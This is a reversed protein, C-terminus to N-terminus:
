SGGNAGRDPLRLRCVLRRDNTKGASRQAVHLFSCSGGNACGRKAKHGGSHGGIRRSPRPAREVKALAAIAADENTTVYLATTSIHKHGVLHAVGALPCRQERAALHPLAEPRQPQRAQRTGRRPVAAEVSERLNEQKVGAFIFGSAPCVRRLAAQAAATLPVRREFHAKDIDRTVFLRSAGRKYHKGVELRLLTSERLGTEWLVTFFPRVWDGTRRSREPMAMLVRKVEAKSLITAQAKRANKARKGPHGAKPLGPVAPLATGHEACWGVFMRLASLEKRLTSRTVCQIRKYMYDSYSRPTFADFGSFHKLFHAEVYM